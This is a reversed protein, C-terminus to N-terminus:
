PTRLVLEVPRPQADLILPEACDCRVVRCVADLIPAVDPHANLRVIQRNQVVVRDFLAHVVAQRERPTAHAFLRPLDALLAAATALNLRQRHVPTAEALQASLADRERAYDADSKLGDEYLRALRKLKALVADRDIAPAVVASRLTQEAEALVGAVDKPVITLAALCDLMTQELLEAHALPADCLRSARAKCRYYRRLGGAGGTMHWIREGCSCWLVGSLWGGRDAQVRGPRVVSRRARAAQAADWIAQDVLPPHTGTIGGVEGLYARHELIAQIAERLWPRGSPTASSRDNLYEAIDAYSVMGSAYLRFVKRVIPAYLNPVLRSGVRDYGTPPQGVWEGRATKHALSAKTKRATQKAQYESIMGKMQFHLMGEPTATDIQDIVSVLAVRQAQLDHYTNLQDRLNRFARDLEYVLVAGVKHQAIYALLQQFGDRGLKQGSVARDVFVQAVVWGRAKCWGRCQAEQVDLSDGDLSDVHSVRLYICVLM